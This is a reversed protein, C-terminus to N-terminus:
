HTAGAETPSEFSSKLPKFLPADGVLAIRLVEDMHTVLKLDLSDTITTPIDKLDKENEAPIIVTQVGARLAAMLKEKLGGIPLVKGRLTVEGTMAVDRRVPIELLASVIATTITIGASPGDKPIAAEPAHVHIDVSQYFEKALGLEDSRARVYSLAAQGSERMIEGLKGTLQLKGKGPVVSAETALLTGGVATWALGNVAGIPDDEEIQGYRFRPPGLLKEVGVQGIRLGLDHGKTVVLRAVKRAVAGISRELERVGAERTYRRILFRLGSQLLVLDQEQLGNAELQKAVLYRRGIAMKENETYGPLRIIELRDQLPIPIGDTTNATCLFMVRSLDYDLDLYHDVFTDNQEPDLVELLASAPDGRWDSSLKDIEDFLFVPNSSGARRLGKIIKGPLAGIYTRRHGRIEAEDRVGGLSVRVFDRGTSRAISRALSTKGVGPPGVLCLIPGKPREVLMRVALYELIRNKVKKLGYHDEDLVQKAKDLDRNEDKVEDWPLALAWDVYNRVVTAEASMPPMMKLKGIERMVRERAEEPMQKEALQKELEDVESGAEGKQGLERQIAQMQENLYYERQTKELQDRVRGRLRSKVQLIETESQLTSLLSELRKVPDFEKLLEQKRPVKLTLQAALIDSLKAPSEIGVITRVMESDIRKKELESYQEFAERVARLLAEEELGPPEPDGDVLVRASVHDPDMDFREILVRRKGEMLVKVTADPLRILRTIQCLTGVVYLDDERPENVKPDKQAVVCISRDSSMARNLADISKDRGVLFPAVMFPFVVTDRLPLVPLTIREATM